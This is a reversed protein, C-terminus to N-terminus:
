NKQEHAMVAIREDRRASSAHELNLFGEALLHRSAAKIALTGIVGATRVGTTAGVDDDDQVLVPGEAAVEVDLGVADHRILSIQDTAAFEEAEHPRCSRRAARVEIKLDAIDGHRWTGGEPRDQGEEFRHVGPGALRERTM